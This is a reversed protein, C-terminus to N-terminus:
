RGPGAKGAAQGGRPSCGPWSSSSRTIIAWAVHVDGPNLGRALEVVAYELLETPYFSVDTLMWGHLLWNGHLMDWAELSNSSGDANVPYTGSLRVYCLFLAVAAAIAALRVWRGRRWPGHQGLAPVPTDEAVRGLM